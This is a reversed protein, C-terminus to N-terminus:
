WRQENYSHECRVNIYLIYQVNSNYLFSLQIHNVRCLHITNNIFCIKSSTGYLPNFLSHSSDTLFYLIFRTNSNFCIWCILRQFVSNLTCKSKLRHFNKPRILSSSSSRICQRTRHNNIICRICSTSQFISCMAVSEIVLTM